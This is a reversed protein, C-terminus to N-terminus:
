RWTDKREGYSHLDSFKVKGTEGIKENLTKSNKDEGIQAETQGPSTSVLLRKERM